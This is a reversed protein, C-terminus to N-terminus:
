HGLIELAERLTLYPNVRRGAALEYEQAERITEAASRALDAPQIHEKEWVGAEHARVGLISLLEAQDSPPLANVRALIEGSLPESSDAAREIVELVQRAAPALQKKRRQEAIEDRGHEL